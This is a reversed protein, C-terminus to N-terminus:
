KNKEAMRRKLKSLAWAADLRTYTNEALVRTEESMLTSEDKPRYFCTWGELYENKVVLNERECPSLAVVPIGRKETEGISNVYDIDNNGMGNCAFLAGDVGLSGMLAGIRRSSRLKDENGDPTGVIVVARVNVDKDASAVELLPDRFYHKTTEKMSSGHGM